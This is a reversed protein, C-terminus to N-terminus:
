LDGEERRVARRDAYVARAKRKRRFGQLAGALTVVTTALDITLCGTYGLSGWKNAVRELGAPESDALAIHDYAQETQAYLDPHRALFRRHAPADLAEAAAERVEAFSDSTCANTLGRVIEASSFEVTGLQQAANRREGFVDGYQLDRLLQKVDPKAPQAFGYEEELDELLGEIHQSAFEDM